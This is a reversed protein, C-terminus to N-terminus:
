GGLHILAREGGRGLGSLYLTYRSVLMFGTGAVDALLKKSINTALLSGALVGPATAALLTMSKSVERDAAFRM